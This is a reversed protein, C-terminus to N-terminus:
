IWLKYEGRIPRKDISSFTSTVKSLLDFSAKKKAQLSSVAITSGLFKAPKDCLNTTQSIGINFGKKTVSGEHLALSVCKDPCICTSLGPDNGKQDLESLASQHETPNSSLITLDDAFGKAKHPHSLCYLLSGPEEKPTYEPLPCHPPLFKKGNAYKWTCTNLDVREFTDENYQVESLGNPAHDVIKCLYWGPPESSQPENWEM